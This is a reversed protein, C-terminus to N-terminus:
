RSRNSPTVKSACARTPVQLTYITMPSFTCTHAVVEYGWHKGQIEPNNASGLSNMYPMVIVGAQTLFEPAESLFRHILKGRECNALNERWQEIHGDVTWCHSFVILDAHGELGNFLDGENVTSNARCFHAANTTANRAAAPSIDSLTVYAAGHLAMVIGQIGTGTGMDIVRKGQFLAQHHLLFSALALAAPRDPQRVGQLVRFQRLVVDESLILDVVYDEHRLYQSLKRQAVKLEDPQLPM